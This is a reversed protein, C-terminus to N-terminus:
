FISCVSVLRFELKVTKNPTYNIIWYALDWQIQIVFLNQSWIPRFKTSSTKLLTISKRYMNSANLPLNEARKPYNWLFITTKAPKPQSRRKTHAM